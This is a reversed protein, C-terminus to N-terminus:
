WETATLLIIPKGDFTANGLKAVDAANALGSQKADIQSQLASQLSDVHTRDYVSSADAKANINAQLATEVLGIANTIDAPKSGAPLQNVPLTSEGNLEAYGNAQGKLSEMYARVLTESSIAVPNGEDDSVYHSANTGDGKVYYISNPELVGPLTEVFNIM